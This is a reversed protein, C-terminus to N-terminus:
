LAVGIQDARLGDISMDLLVPRQIGWTNIAETAVAHAEQEAWEVTDYQDLDEDAVDVFVTVEASTSFRVMYKM